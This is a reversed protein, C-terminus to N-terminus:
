LYRQNAISVKSGDVNVKPAPVKIDYAKIDEESLEMYYDYAADTVAQQLRAVTDATNKEGIFPLTAAKMAAQFGMEIEIATM